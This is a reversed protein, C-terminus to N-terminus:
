VCRESIIRSYTAAPKTTLICSRKPKYESGVIYFRGFLGSDMMHAAMYKELDTAAYLAVHQVFVSLFKPRRVIVPLQCKPMSATMCTLSWLRCPKAAGIRTAYGPFLAM